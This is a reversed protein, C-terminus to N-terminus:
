TRRLGSTQIQQQGQQRCSQPDITSSIETSPLARMGTNFDSTCDKKGGEHQLLKKQRRLYVLSSCLSLGLSLSLSLTLEVIDLILGILVDPAHWMAIAIGM